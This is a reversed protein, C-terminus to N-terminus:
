TLWNAGIIRWRVVVVYFREGGVVAEMVGDRTASLKTGM